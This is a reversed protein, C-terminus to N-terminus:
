PKGERLVELPLWALVRCGKGQQSEVYLQGGTNSARERMGRLGFGSTNQSMEFGQGNDSIMIWLSESIAVREDDALNLTADFTEDVTPRIPPGLAFAFPCKEGPKTRQMSVTVNTANSHKCTNTLAEEVIRYAARKAPESVPESLQIQPSIPIAVDRNFRAILQSLLNELSEKALPDSRLMKLSRRLEQLAEAGLQKGQKIFARGKTSDSDKPVFALANNLQIKQATLLHGLSDHIERAIRNREEITAQNEIRLAYQRLQEHAIALRQRSRKEANVTSTLLLAFVTAVGFYLLKGLSEEILISRFDIEASLDEATTFAEAQDNLSSPDLLTSLLLTDAYISLLFALSVTLLRGSLGFIVCSRMVVIIFSLSYDWVWGSALSSIGLLGLEALTYAIKKWTAKQYPILLGLAAFVCLVFVPIAALLGASYDWNGLFGPLVWFRFIELLNLGILFWEVRLLLPFPHQRCKAKYQRLLRKLPKARNM